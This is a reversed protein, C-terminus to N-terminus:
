ATAAGCMLACLEPREAYQLLNYETLVQTFQESTFTDDAGEFSLLYFYGRVRDYLYIAGSNQDDPVMQLLLIARPMQIWRVAVAEGISLFLKIIDEIRAEQERVGLDKAEFLQHVGM